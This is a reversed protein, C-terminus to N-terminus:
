KMEIIFINNRKQTKKKIDLDINKFIDAIFASAQRDSINPVGIDEFKKKIDDLTTEFKLDMYGIKGLHKGM